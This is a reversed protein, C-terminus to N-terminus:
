IKRFIIYYLFNLRESKTSKIHNLLKCVTAIQTNKTDDKFLSIVGVCNKQHIGALKLMQQNTVDGDIAPVHPYFNELMLADIKTKDKDLVVFRYDNEHVRNIISKIVSNYGLMIYFPETLSHVQRSFRNRHIAKRLAEDQILAVISGIAYFWGIVTLYIIGSVWIRQSYTFTYPAEGFGITSAMYSVFYFADFFTMRYVNGQDDVGDILTLGLIAIAFTVIIVLFPIRLRKLVIWFIQDNM